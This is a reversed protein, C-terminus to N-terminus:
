LSIGFLNAYFKFGVQSTDEGPFSIQDKNNYCSLTIEVYLNCKGFLMCGERGLETHCKVRGKWHIFVTYMSVLYFHHM